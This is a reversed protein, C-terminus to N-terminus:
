WYDKCSCSGDRFRHFRTRDRVVIERSYVKSVLKTVHHCDSCVRLNKLIRIPEAAGYGTDLLAFAIALKESHRALMNDKEEEEVELLVEKHDPVYGELKILGEIEEWKALIADMQPHSMDGVIFQHVLGGMEVSSCGPTKEVGKRKMLAWVDRADKHRGSAAYINALQVYVGGNNPELQILRKVVLEALRVNGHFRCGAMIATWIYGDPRMPMSQVIGMAEELRGNRALVDVLCGYHEIKPNIGYVKSMSDFIHRGKEVLGAHSCACLAGIFAIDDPLIGSKEMESFLHLAEIGRGHTALGKIMTTWSLLNKENMGNFVELALEVEGCKAYMDILSTGLFVNTGIGKSQLYGHVWKGQELAGVQACASLVSVLTGENPQFGEAQMRSFLALGDRAEGCQVHGAVMASWTIVNRAPMKDFLKRASGVDGVKVYGSIMTNYSVSDTLASGKLLRRACRLEGRVAYFYILANNVFLHGDFGLKIAHAQAARGAASAEPARSCAKLLFPFTHSDPSLECRRLHSYVFVADLPAGPAVQGYARILKNHLFVASASLLGSIALRAHAQRVQTATTCQLLLAHPADPLERTMVAVAALRRLQPPHHPTRLRNLAIPRDPGL